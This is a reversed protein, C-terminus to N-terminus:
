PPRLLSDSERLIVVHLFDAPLARALPQPFARSAHMAQSWVGSALDQKATLGREATGMATLIGM